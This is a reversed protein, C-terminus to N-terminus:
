MYLTIRAYGSKMESNNYLTSQDLVCLVSFVLCVAQSELHLCCMGEEIIGYYIQIGLCLYTCMFKM